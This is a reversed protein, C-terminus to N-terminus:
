GAGGGAAPSVEAIMTRLEDWPSGQLSEDVPAVEITARVEGVDGPVLHAHFHEVLSIMPRNDRLIEGRVRSFGNHRAALLVGGLLLSGLGRGHWEDVVAVAFEATDPEDRLRIYRAVGLGQHADDLAFAALAFHDHYDLETFYRLQADSLEHVPSFFRYYRSERSLRHMGDQLANKDQPLVPRIGVAVGDALTTEVQLLESM